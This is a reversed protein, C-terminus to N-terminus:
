SIAEKTTIDRHTNVEYFKLICLALMKEHLSISYQSYLNLDCGFVQAISALALTM